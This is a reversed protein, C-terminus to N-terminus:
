KKLLELLYNRGTAKVMDVKEEKVPESQEVSPQVEVKPEEVKKELNPSLKKPESNKQVKPENTPKSTPQSVKTPKAVPKPITFASKKPKVPKRTPEELEGFAIPQTPAATKPYVQSGFRGNQQGNMMVPRPGGMGPRFPPQQPAQPYQPIQPNFQSVGVPTPAFGPPPMQTPNNYVMQNNMGMPYSNNFNPQNMPPPVQQMYMILNIGREQLTQCIANSLENETRQSINLANFKFSDQAPHNQLLFRFNRYSNIISLLNNIIEGSPGSSVMPQNTILNRIAQEVDNLTM